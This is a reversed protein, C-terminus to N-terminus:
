VQTPPIRVILRALGQTCRLQCSLRSGERRRSATCDLMENESDNVPPLTGIVKEVYVHCTACMAAGGCEGVIGLIGHATAAHMVTEGEALTLSKESGDPCRFLVESM